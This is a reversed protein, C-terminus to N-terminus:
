KRRVHDPVPLPENASCLFEVIMYIVETEGANELDRMHCDDAPVHRFIQDGRGLELTETRGSVERSVLCGDSLAIFLYDLVHCHFAIREGPGLRTRWIRARVNEAVVQRGVCGNRPAKTLEEKLHDPWTQGSESPL